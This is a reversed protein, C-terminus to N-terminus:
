PLRREIKKKNKFWSRLRNFWNKNENRKAELLKNKLERKRARSQRNSM